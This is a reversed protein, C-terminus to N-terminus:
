ATFGDSAKDVIRIMRLLEFKSDSFGGKAWRSIMALTGNVIFTTLYKMQETPKKISDEYQWVSLYKEELLAAVKGMFNRNDDSDSFLMKVTSKHELFYDIFDNYFKEYSHHPDNKTMKDLDALVENEYESYLAYVDHYHSYFTARHVDAKDSLEQVTIKRLEKQTLLEALAIKLAKKTKRIRRDNEENEIEM